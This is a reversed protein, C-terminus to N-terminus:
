YHDAPNNADVFQKLAVMNPFYKRPKDSFRWYSGDMGDCKKEAALSCTSGDKSMTYFDVANWRFGNENRTYFYRSAKFLKRASM